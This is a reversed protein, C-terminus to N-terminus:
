EVPVTERTERYRNVYQHALRLPEPIRYRPSCKLVLELADPLTIKHGVSVYVPQVGRRTRLAAGVERGQFHIPTFSGKEVGPPEFEGVLLSKACGVTPLDLLLGLHSALGFFRPHAVGQGDCLLVDPVVPLADFIELLVPAERFSLFGPVYPFRAEAQRYYVSHLTLEPFHVLVVAGFLVPSKRSFSVDAAAVLRIRDWDLPTESNVRSRLQEQVKKAEAPSLDWRHLSRVKM